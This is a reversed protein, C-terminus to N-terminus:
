GALEELHRLKREVQYNTLSAVEQQLVELHGRLIAVEGRAGCECQWEKQSVSMDGEEEASCALNGKYKSSIDSFPSSIHTM